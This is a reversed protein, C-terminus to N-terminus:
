EHAVVSLTGKMLQRSLNVQGDALGPKEDMRRLSKAMAIGTPSGDAADFGTM